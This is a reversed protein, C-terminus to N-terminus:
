FGSGFILGGCTLANLLFTIAAMIAIGSATRSQGKAMFTILLPVVYVLQSLGLLFVVFLAMIEFGHGAIAAVWWGGCWVVHGGFVVGAGAWPNGRSADPGNHQQGYPNLPSHTVPKLDKQPPLKVEPRLEPPKPPEPPIPNFPDM